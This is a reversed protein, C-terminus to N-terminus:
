NRDDPVESEAFIRYPRVAGAIRQLELATCLQSPFRGRTIHTPHNKADTGLKSITRIGKKQIARPTQIEPRYPVLLRFQPAASMLGRCLSTTPVGARTCSHSRRSQPRTFRAPGPERLQIAQPAWLQGGKEVSTSLYLQVSSHLLCYMAVWCGAYTANSIVGLSKRAM